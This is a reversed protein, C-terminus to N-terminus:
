PQSLAEQLRSLPVPRDALLGLALRREGQSAMQGALGGADLTAAQAIQDPVLARTAPSLQPWARLGLLARASALAPAHPATELSRRYAREFDPTAGEIGFLALALQLWAYSDSPAGALAARQNDISRSLLLRRRDAELAPDRAVALYLQALRQHLQSDEQRELASEYDAIASWLGEYDSRNRGQELNYFVLEHRDTLLSAVFRPVAAAVLPVAVALALFAPWPHRM